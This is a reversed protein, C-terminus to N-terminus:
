KVEEKGRKCHLNDVRLGKFGSQASVYDSEGGPVGLGDCLLGEMKKKNM